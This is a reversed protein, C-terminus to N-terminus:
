PAAFFVPVRPPGLVFNRVYFYEIILDVCAGYSELGLEQDHARLFADYVTDVTERMTETLATLVTDVVQIGTDVTRQAQWFNSVSNWDRLVEEYLSASIQAWAAPDADRLATLLYTLGFLYGAYEFILNGSTISAIIAVFNAEDEAFVGLTHAHEHAVTAPMLVYPPHVNINAEGTLAFYIGAYGARSMLGSFMMPKPRFIRGGLEPFERSINEFIYMSEAFIQQRNGVHNGYDDREVYLSLENARQAFLRTVTALNRSNVGQGTFGNRQAFGPAHYGVNWLWCFIGWVYLAAVLLPLLRIGLMKWKRRRRATAMVTYIIYYIVGLISAVILVEMTSFPYFETILGLFGRVPASINLSAWGMIVPNGRLAYFLATIVAPLVCIAIIVGRPLKIKNYWKKPKDINM